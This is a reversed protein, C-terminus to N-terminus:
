TGFVLLCFLVTYEHRAARGRREELLAPIINMNQRFRRTELVYGRQETSESKVM